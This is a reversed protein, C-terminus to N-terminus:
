QGVERCLAEEVLEFQSEVCDTAPDWDDASKRHRSWRQFTTGLINQTAETQPLASGDARTVKPLCYFMDIQEAPYSRPIDLASDVHSGNCGAPLEYGRVILWQKKGELVAEWELGLSDLFEVDQEQLPFQRQQTSASAEGNNIDKIKVRLCEIGDDRLDLNDDIGVQKRGSKTVLLLNYEKGLDFGAAGM